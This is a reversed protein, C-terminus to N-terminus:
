WRPACPSSWPCTTSSWCSPPTPWSTCGACCPSSPRPRASPSGPRPSTSCCCGPGPWCSPPWTWWGGHDRHLAPRHPPPPLPRDRVLRHGRGGGGAQGAGVPPGLADAPHLVARGGAHPRGPDAVAGGGRQARPLAPLGPLVAGRRPLLAGRAPVRRPERRRAAGLRGPADVLGSIVDLMTTKGSGNPGILGVISGPEASWTPGTSPRCGASPWRCGTDGRAPGPGLGRRRRRGSM